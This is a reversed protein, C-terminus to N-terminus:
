DLGDYEMRHYGSIAEVPLGSAPIAEGPYRRIAYMPGAISSYSDLNNVTLTGKVYLSDVIVKGNTRNM